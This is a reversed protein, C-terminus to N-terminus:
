SGLETLPPSGRIIRPGGNMTFYRVATVGIRLASFQHCRVSELLYIGMQPNRKRTHPIQPRPFQEAMALVPSNPYIPSCSRAGCASRVVADGSAAGYGSTPGTGWRANTERKRLGGVVAKLAKVWRGLVVAEHGQHAILHIHDPM